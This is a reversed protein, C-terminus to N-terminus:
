AVAKKILATIKKEVAPTLKTIAYGVPWMDGDDLNAADNFGLTPYRTEFKAAGQFFFVIKNDANAYAPMSYWTKPKLEPAHEKALDHIAQAIEGDAEPMESIKELVDAEGDKKGRQARLEAAREKMAKKEFDSFGETSATQAM